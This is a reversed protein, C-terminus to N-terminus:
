KKYDPDTARQVKVNTKPKSTKKLEEILNTYEERDVPIKVPKQKKGSLICANCFEVSYLGEEGPALLPEGNLIAGAFNRIIEIHGTGAEEDLDLPEEEAKLREWMDEAKGTFGSVTEGYRYFRIDAAPKRDQIVLKGKEGCIEIFPGQLPEFTSTYYYGCAGNEYELVAQVEDEVEINHFRTNTKAEVKKPMGGLVMFIDIVHPAHNILVGGGEGKWTARWTGSDYYAQSRYWSDVCLTRIIEGVQGSKVLEFAKRIRPKLRKQLMASFVRKNEKASKIMRDADAVTVAIPKESLVHLGHEFAFISVEPHFWHPIAVIVADCLGSAVMKKYDSFPEVGFESAREQVVPEENDCVCTLETEKLAVVNKCHAYGMGGMGIVGIRVPTM